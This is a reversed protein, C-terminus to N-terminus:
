ANALTTVTGSSGRYKLAGSEVYLYGGGSPNASPVTANALACVFKGSFSTMGIGVNGGSQTLGKTWTASACDWLSWSGDSNFDLEFRGATATRGIIAGGDSQLNLTLAAEPSATGIGILASALDLVLLNSAAGGAEEFKTLNANTTVLLSKASATSDEMRFTPATSKLHLLSAANFQAVNSISVGNKVYFRGYGTSVGEGTMTLTATTTGKLNADGYGGSDQAHAYVSATTGLNSVATLTAQADYYTADGSARTLLETQTGSQYTNLTGRGAGWQLYNSTQGLSLTIGTSDLAVAGAGAYIKGDTASLYAQRVNANLGYLGTADAWIGTGHTSDTPRAGVAGLSLKDGALFQGRPAATMNLVRSVPDFPTIGFDLYDVTQTENTKQNAANAAVSDLTGATTNFRWYSARFSTYASWDIANGSNDITRKIIAGLASHVDYQDSAITVWAGNNGQLTVDPHISFGTQWSALVCGYAFNTKEFASTKITNM